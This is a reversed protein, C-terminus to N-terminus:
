PSYTDTWLKTLQNWMEDETENNEYADIMIEICQKKYEQDPSLPIDGENMVQLHTSPDIYSELVCTSRIKQNQAENLAHAPTTFSIAVLHIIIITLILYKM